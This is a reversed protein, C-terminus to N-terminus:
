LKLDLSDFGLKQHWGIALTIMEGFGLLGAFESYRQDAVLRRIYEIDEIKDARASRYILRVTVGLDFSPDDLKYEFEYDDHDSWKRRTREIGNFTIVKRGTEHMSSMGYSRSLGFHRNKEDRWVMPYKAYVDLFRHYPSKKFDVNYFSM